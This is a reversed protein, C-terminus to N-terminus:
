MTFSSSINIVATRAEKEYYGDEEKIVPFIYFLCVIL